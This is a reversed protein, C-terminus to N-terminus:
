HLLAAVESLATACNTELKLDLMDDARTRGLNVAAIPIRNERAFRCFRFGSYVVLSSGVVLLGRSESLAQFSENVRQRPVAEGFYVVDPKLIGACVTCTPVEFNSLDAGTLQTDGDPAADASLGAFPPNRSVLVSQVSQRSVRYGCKICLVGALNGHLEIIREQGAQRHLGDVNQTVLIDLLGQKELYVLAHHADNPLADSVRPWGLMSRAWYRQRVSHDQIFPQYQVPQAHKWDGNADRYDPIGSDTSCGAGTLVFLPQNREVFERLRSIQPM